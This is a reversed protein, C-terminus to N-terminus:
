HMLGFLGSPTTLKLWITEKTERYRSSSSANAVTHGPGISPNRVSNCRCANDCRVGQGCRSAFVLNRYQFDWKIANPSRFPLKVWSNDGLTSGWGIMITTSLPRDQTAGREQVREDCETEIYNKCCGEAKRVVDAGCSWAILLPPVATTITPCEIEEVCLVAVAGRLVTALRRLARLWRWPFFSCACVCMCNAAFLLYRELSFHRSGVCREPHAVHM